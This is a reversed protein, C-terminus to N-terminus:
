KLKDVEYIREILAKPVPIKQQTKFDFLIVEHTKIAVLRQQETSFFHSILIVRDKKIGTTKTGIIITDPYVLPAIYKVSQFGLIPAYNLKKSGFSFLNLVKLYDIRAMEGWRVYAVNNVHRFADMDGWQVNIESHINFEKLQNKM